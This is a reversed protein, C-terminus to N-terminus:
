SQTLIIFLAHSKLTRIQISIGYVFHLNYIRFITLWANIRLLVRIYQSIQRLLEYKVVLLLTDSLHIMITMMMWCHTLMNQVSRLGRPQSSNGFMCYLQPLRHYTPFKFSTFLVNSIVIRNQITCILQKASSYIYKPCFDMVHVTMLSTYQHSLRRTLTLRDIQVIHFNSMLIWCLESIEYLYSIWFPKFIPIKRIMRNLFFPLMLHYCDLKLFSGKM